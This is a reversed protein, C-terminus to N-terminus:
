GPMGCVYGSGFVGARPGPRGALSTMGVDGEALRLRVVCGGFEPGGAVAVAVAEGNEAAQGVFTPTGIAGFPVMASTGLFM